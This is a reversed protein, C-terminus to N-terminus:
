SINRLPGFWLEGKGGGANDELSQYQAGMGDALLCGASPLRVQSCLPGPGGEPVQQVGVEGNLLRFVHPPILFLFSPTLQLTRMVLQANKLLDPWQRPHEM